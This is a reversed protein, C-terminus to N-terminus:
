ARALKREIVEIKKELIYIRALEAKERLRSKLDKIEAKIPLIEKEIRSFYDATSKYSDKVDRVLGEIKVDVAGLRISIRTVDDEVGSLRIDMKDIKDVLDKQVEGFVKFQGHMEEIMMAVHDGSYTKSQKKKKVM